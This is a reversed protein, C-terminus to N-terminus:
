PDVQPREAAWRGRAGGPCVARRAQTSQSMLPLSGLSQVQGPSVQRAMPPSMQPALRPQAGPAALSCFTAPPALGPFAAAPGAMAGAHAVM